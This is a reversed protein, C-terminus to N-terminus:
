NNRNLITLEFEFSFKLGSASTTGFNTNKLQQLDILDTNNNLNEKHNYKLSLSLKNLNIPYFYNKNNFPSDYYKTGSGNENYDSEYPLRKIIHYGKLNNICAEIPANNIIVDLYIHTQSGNISRNINEYIATDLTLGIVNEYLKNLSFICEYSGNFECYDNMDEYSILLRETTIEKAYLSSIDYIKNENNNETLNNQKHIITEPNIEFDDIDELINENFTNNNFIQIEKITKPDIQDNVFEELFLNDM